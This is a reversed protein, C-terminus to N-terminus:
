PKWQGQQVVKKIKHQGLWAKQNTEINVLSLDVQYFLVKQGGERDQIQDIGGGLMFDAGLERGMQKVTEETANQWQDQGESRLDAREAATAVVDVKGSNVMAREIDGIFTGVPVHETTKNRVVGVIIVPKKSNHATMWETIWPHNLADQIMAESVERSDVDNWRGSLDVTTDVPVRTV